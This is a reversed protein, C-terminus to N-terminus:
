TTKFLKRVRIEISNFEVANIILEAVYLQENDVGGVRIIEGIRPVCGVDAQAVLELGHSDVIIVKM